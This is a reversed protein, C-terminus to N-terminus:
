LENLVKWVVKAMGKGNCLRSFWTRQKIRAVVEPPVYKEWEPNGEEILRVVDESQGRFIINNEKCLAEPSQHQDSLVVIKGEKRLYEHLFQLAESEIPSLSISGDGQINPYQFIRVNGSFLRGFAELMGGKDSKYAGENFLGREISYAGGGITLVIQGNTYRALYESLKHTRSIGSVMVPLKLPALMDFRDLFEVVLISNRSLSTLSDVEVYGTGEVDLEKLLQDVQDAPLRGATIAKLEELSLRGDVDTDAELLKRARELRGETRVLGHPRTLDDVQLDLIQMPEKDDPGLEEKLKRFAADIVERHAYTLPRFRSRQVVVSRKYLASNPVAQAYAVAEDDWELLVAEAVRFQVMRMALLRADVSGPPFAPGTFEVKDVELRNPELGNLLFSAIVYPDSTNNCLYLLNTGLVGIAQGQLNATDDCMRVHLQV